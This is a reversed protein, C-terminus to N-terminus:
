VTKKKYVLTQYSDVDFEMAVCIDQSTIVIDNTSTGAFRHRGALRHDYAALIILDLALVGKNSSTTSMITSTVLIIRKKRCASGISSEAVLVNGGKAHAGVKIKDKNKFHM